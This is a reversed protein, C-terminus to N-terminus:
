GLRVGKNFLANAVQERLAAEPADGYRKVMEDYVAIEEESRQLQGLTVGKNVLAKAVRERLAAESADGYRKVVEDYAAIAKESHKLKGLRLGKNILARAVSERLAAESADGYRKVVDDYVAIAEESRQLQGLDFGKNHLAKAVQERLTTEPADGYRKVVEDYIAIAEVCRQLEGFAIGKNVLAQALDVPAEAIDAAKSFYEISIEYKGQEFAQRGLLYWDSSRYEKPPVSEISNVAEKLEQKQEPTLPKDKDLPISAWKDVLARNRANLEQAVEHEKRLGDLTKGAVEQIDKLAKDVKTRLGAEIYAEARQEIEKRAEDKAALVAEKTSRFSFLLVVVTILIGFFGIMLGLDVIREDQTQLREKFFELKQQQLKLDTVVDTAVPLAHVAPTEIAASPQADQKAALVPLASLLLACLFATVIKKM